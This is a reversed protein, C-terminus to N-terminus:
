FFLRIAVIIIEAVVASIMIRVDGVLSNPTYYFNTIKKM